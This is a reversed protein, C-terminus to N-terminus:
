INKLEELKDKMRPTITGEEDMKELQKIKREIRRDLTYFTFLQNWRIRRMTFRKIHHRTFNTLNYISVRVKREPIDLEESIEKIIKELASDM